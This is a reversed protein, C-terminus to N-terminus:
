TCRSLRRRLCTPSHPNPSLFLFLSQSFLLIPTLPGRLFVSRASCSWCRLRGSCVSTRSQERTSPGVVWSTCRLTASYCHSPLGNKRSLRLKQVQRDKHTSQFLVCLQPLTVTFLPPPSNRSGVSPRVFPLAISVALPAPVRDSESTWQVCGYDQLLLANLSSLAQLLPAHWSDPSTLDLGTAWADAFHQAPRTGGHSGLWVVLACTASYFASIAKGENPTIGFGGRFHPVQIKMNAFKRLHPTWDVHGGGAGHRCVAEVITADVQAMFESLLPTPTNRGLVNQCFNLVQTHLLGDSVADLKAVDTIVSRAKKGVFIKVWADVGVPIGAVRMGDTSVGVEMAALDASAPDARVARELASRATDQDLSFSTGPFFVNFKPVNLDMDLEVQKVRQSWRANNLPNDIHAYTHMHMCIYIHTSTHTYLHMHIHIYIYIHIDTYIYAYVNIYARTHTYMHV